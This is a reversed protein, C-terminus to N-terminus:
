LPLRDARLPYVVVREVDLEDRHLGVLAESGVHLVRVRGPLQLSALWLGDPAILDFTAAEEWPLRFREAWVIGRDDVLISRVAPLTEPVGASRDALFRALVPRRGADANELAHEAYRDWVDNTSRAEPSWRHVALLRGRRDRVHVEPAGDDVSLIRTNGAAATGAGTLPVPFLRVRGDVEVGVRPQAHVRFVERAATWDAAVVHYILPFRVRQGPRWRGVGQAAPSVALWSGDDFRGVATLGPFSRTQIISDVGGAVTLLQIRGNFPDSVAMQGDADPFLTMSSYANFEGPGEGSRGISARHSGDPGFVRIESAGSVSVVVAGDPARWASTVGDLLYPEAGDIVGISMAPGSLLDSATLSLVPESSQVIRVGASDRVQPAQARLGPAALLMFTWLMLPARM